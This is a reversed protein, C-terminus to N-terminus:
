KQHPRTDGLKFELERVGLKQGGKVKTTVGSWGRGESGEFPGGVLRWALSLLSDSLLLSTKSYFSVLDRTARTTNM